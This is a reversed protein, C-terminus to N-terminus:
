ERMVQIYNYHKFQVTPTHGMQVCVAVMEEVELCQDFYLFQAITAWVRRLVRNSLVQYSSPKKLLSPLDEGVSLPKAGSQDNELKQKEEEGKRDLCNKPLTWNPCERRVYIFFNGLIERGTPKNGDNNTTELLLKSGVINKKDIVECLRGLYTFTKNWHHSPVDHNKAGSKM